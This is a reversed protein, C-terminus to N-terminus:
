IGLVVASPTVIWSALTRIPASTTPSATSDTMWFDIVFRGAGEIVNVYDHAVIPCNWGGTGDLTGLHQFLLQGAPYPRTRAGYTIVRQTTSPVQAGSKNFLLVHVTVAEGYAVQIPGQTPRPAAGAIIPAGDDIVAVLEIVRPM